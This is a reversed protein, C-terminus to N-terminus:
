YRHGIVTSATRCGHGVAGGNAGQSVGASNTESLLQNADTYALACVATGNTVTTARGRRDYVMAVSPTTDSYSVGTLDGLTSYSNTTTIGRAWARTLLRGAPTYGYSPGASGCDYVKNTLFGRYGDYNWTTVRTGTSTAFGTWNTMKTMRGQADYGYGAPYTRSGLTRRLEGTLYYENTVTTLDAQFVNTARGMNDFYTATTQPGQGTGPPPTTVSTLQDANNYGYATAGNRADTTTLVRGHADYAYSTKGLQSGTSSYRTASGLRGYSYATLTCSGDPATNTVYRNGSGAYVTQSQNTVGAGANWLINWARLGDASTEVTSVLNSADTGGTPWVYNQMRRITTGNNTTVYNTAWTLLPRDLSKVCIRQGLTELFRARDADDKFIPERRDARNMVHYIAGPYQVRLKRAVGM